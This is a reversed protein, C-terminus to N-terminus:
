SRTRATSPGPAGARGQSHLRPDLLRPPLHEGFHFAYSPAFHNDECWVSEQRLLTVVAIQLFVENEVEWRLGRSRMDVVTALQAQSYFEFRLVMKMRDRLPALLAHEDTSSLLLTFDQLPINSPANRGTSIVIQRKDIARYLATQYPKALEHCEDIHVVDKAKAGLLLANLDAPTKINQDVKSAVAVPYNQYWACVYVIPLGQARALLVQEGSVVAFQLKNAGVLSVADTEFSYDFDIEIGADKFYGKEIAVYFPAFQINPIYGMPLRIKTLAGADTTSKPSGCGSLVLAVGLMILVLKRFM